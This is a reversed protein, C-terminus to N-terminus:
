CNGPRGLDGGVGGFHCGDLRPEVLRRDRMADFIELLREGLHCGDAAHLYLVIQLSQLVVVLDADLLDTAAVPVPAKWTVFLFGSFSCQFPSLLVEILRISSGRLQLELNVVGSSRAAFIVFCECV